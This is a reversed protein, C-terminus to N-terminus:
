YDASRLDINAIVQHCFYVRWQGDQLTPRVAVPLGTFPKGVHWRKGAFSIVGRTTVKRVSDGQDYEIAPLTEPFCLASVRYRSAPTNMALAEHPREHNYVHRWEELAEHCDQLGAFRRTALLEVELTAHLREIKGQTQPHYPRGHTIGVGLRLLWASLATYRQEHTGGWCSGNDLLMRQPLGYRRFVATLHARVTQDRQNDCAAVLLAYRSHDDLISLPECRGGGALAMDGKFDMQWLENPTAREFRTFPQHDRSAAPDICRHRRLIATITSPAPSSDGRRLLVARIKRGGWAPHKKRVGLVADEGEPSTQRPSHHPRRNQDLAWAHPSAAAGANGDVAARALWKYATPRSIGFRRCLESLASGEQRALSVFEERLRMACVENWPM